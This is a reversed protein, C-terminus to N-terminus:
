EPTEEIRIDELQFTSAEDKGFGWLYFLCVLLLTALFFMSRVSKKAVPTGRLIKRFKIRSRTEESNEGVAEEYYFPTFGFKRIQKKQFFGHSFM